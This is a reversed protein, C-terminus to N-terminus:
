KIVVRCEWETTKDPQEVIVCEVLGSAVQVRAMDIVYSSAPVSIIFTTVIGICIGIALESM